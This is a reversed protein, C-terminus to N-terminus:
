QVVEIKQGKAELMNIVSDSGVFHGTGAAIFITGPEDLMGIIQNTWKRNRKVVLNEYYAQGGMTDGNEFMKGLGIIDGDAWEEVTLDAFSALTPLTEVTFMLQEVHDQTTGATLAQFQDEPRELFKFIKDSADGETILVMEVGSSIEYGIKELQAYGLDEAFYWLARKSYDEINLGVSEAVSAAKAYETHSLITQLTEDGQLKFYKEALPKMVEPDSFENIDGELYIIESANFASNFADTRWEVGTPLTHVTGFMYITTDEDSLKWLTPNGDGKTQKALTSYYEIKELSTVNTMLTTGKALSDNSIKSPECAVLLMAAM